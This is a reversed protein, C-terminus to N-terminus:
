EKPELQLIDSDQILTNITSTTDELKEPPNVTYSGMKPSIMWQGNVRHFRLINVTIHEKDEPESLFYYGAWDSNQAARIFRTTSLDPFLHEKLANKTEADSWHATFQAVKEPNHTAEEVRTFYTAPIPEDVSARVANYLAEMGEQNITAAAQIQEITMHTILPLVREPPPTAAPRAASPSCGAGVFILALAVTAAPFIRMRWM